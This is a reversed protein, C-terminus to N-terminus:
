YVYIGYFNLYNGAKDYVKIDFRDSYNGKITVKYYGKFKGKKVKKIYKKALKKEKGFNKTYTIKGIGSKKDKVYFTIKGKKYSYNQLKKVVPPKDEFLFTFTSTNGNLDTAVITNKGQKYKTTDKLRWYKSKKGNETVSYCSMDFGNCTVSKLAYNDTISLKKLTERNYYKKKKLGKIVPATKDALMEAKGSETYCFIAGEATSGTYDFKVTRKDESLEGNTEIVDEAFIFTM